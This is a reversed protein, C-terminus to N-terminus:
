AEVTVSGPGLLGEVAEIFAASPRVRLTRSRVDVEAGDVQLRLALPVTGRHADCIARLAQLPDADGGSRVAVRCARPLPAVVGREDEAPLPRVDDALLKRATATGEVKGRVLIPSGGRLHAATQRFLEPFVTVEISGEVDEITVFGMRNGNKTNIERLATVLGCLLVRAGDDVQALQATGVVGLRQAHEWVGRLPHGSLYFGLVEKEHLLREEM